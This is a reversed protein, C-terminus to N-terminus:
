RPPKLVRAGGTPEYKKCTNLQPQFRRMGNPPGLRPPLVFYGTSSPDPWDSVGQQRMCNAYTRAKAMEGASLPQETANPRGEQKMQRNLPACAAPLQTKGGSGASDPFVWKGTSDKTPDPFSPHGHARM